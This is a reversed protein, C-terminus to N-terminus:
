VFFINMVYNVILNFFSFIFLFIFLILYYYYFFFGIAFAAVAFSWQLTTHNKFVVNAPANMVGTNFGV